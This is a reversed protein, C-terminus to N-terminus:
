EEIRQPVAGLQQMMGLADYTSRMEEITNRSVCNVELLKALALL